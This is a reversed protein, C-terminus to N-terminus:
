IEVDRIYKQMKKSNQNGTNQPQYNKEQIEIINLARFVM